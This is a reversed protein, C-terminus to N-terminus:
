EGEAQRARAAADADSESVVVDPAVRWRRFVVVLAAVAVVLGAVPLAWVLGALGSRPPNLVIRDGFSTVLTDRIEDDTKGQDILVAIQQRILKAAPAQSNTVSEGSCAPCMITEGLRHARDADSVRDRDTVGVFLAGAVVLLLAGWALKRV